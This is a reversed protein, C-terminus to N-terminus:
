VEYIIDAETNQNITAQLLKFSIINSLELFIQAPNKKDESLKGYNFFEEKLESDDLLEPIRNERTKSITMLNIVHKILSKDDKLFNSICKTNQLKKLLQQKKRM